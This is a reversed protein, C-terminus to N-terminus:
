KKIAKQTDKPSKNSQDEAKPLAITKQSKNTPFVKLDSFKDKLSEFRQRAKNAINSAIANITAKRAAKQEEEIKKVTVGLGALIKQDAKEKKPDDVNEGKLRQFANYAKVVPEVDAKIAVMFMNMRNEVIKAIVTLLISIIYTFIMLVTFLLTFTINEGKLSILTIISSILTPVLIIYKAIKYVEKARKKAKRDEKQQKKSEMVISFILYAASIVLLPINVYLIGTPACIAYILYAIYIGQTLFNAVMAIKQLDDITQKAVAITYKFM